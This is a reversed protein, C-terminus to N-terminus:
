VILFRLRLKLHCKRMRCGAISNLYAAKHSRQSSAEAPIPDIIVKKRVSFYFPVPLGNNVLQTGNFLVLSFNFRSSERDVATLPIKIFGWIMNIGRIQQHNASDRSNMKEM